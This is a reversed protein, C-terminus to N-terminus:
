FKREFSNFNVVYDFNYDFNIYGFEIDENRLKENLLDFVEQTILPHLEPALIFAKIKKAREINRRRVFKGLQEDRMVMAYFFLESLVGVKCNGEAKLELM